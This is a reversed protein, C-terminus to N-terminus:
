QIRAVWLAPRLTAGLAFGGADTFAFAAAPHAGAASLVVYATSGGRVSRSASASGFVMTPPNLWGFQDNVSLWAAISDSNWSTISFVSPVWASGTGNNQDDLASATAFRVFLSDFNVGTLAQVNASGSLSPNKQVWDRTFQVLGGPYTPGFQDGLYRQFSWSTGYFYGAYCPTTLQLSGYLTCLDPANAAQNNSGLVGFSEAWKIMEDAYWNYGAAGFAVGAGYNQYSTNGLVADGALEEAFTAQGEAEWSTLSQGSHLILRQANQIVHTFEHAILQPMAAVVSSKTRAGTGAQNLPDPVEGYYIEGYNSQPCVATPFLDGGFVFGLLNSAAKNVQWTLVILVHGNNDLDTPHGFQATDSVFIKADFQNSASQIDSLTLSDTTPNQIDCLWIGASGVVRVVTKIAVYTLCPSAASFSPVRVIVTDGVAPPAGTIRGGTMAAVPEPRRAQSMLSPLHDAEWQRLKAEARARERMQDRSGQQAAALGAQRRIAPRPFLSRAPPAGAFPPAASIGGASTVTFPMVTAPSEAPASMGIVYTEPGSTAARFQLCFLSTNQVISEQGVALTVFSAPHVPVSPKAAAQSGVTVSVSVLRAPQCNSTPVTVTLSTLTAATVTAKAGGVFVTDNSLTTSFGTGTLTATQGEVLTDPQVSALSLATATATFTVPNGTIGSGTVTATLTNAGAVGLTWSGVTAVGSGNTSQNAGTISGGGSAVAFAVAVGAKPNSFADMVIVAPPTAVAAGATGSQGDGAQKGVSAAAGAAASATFTVATLTGVTATVTQTGVTGGLTWTSQGQGSANTTATVTGVSGGGTAIAFALMVGVAPHSASDNVQVVLPQALTQGVTGSQTDGSVKAIQAGVQTVTVTVNRTATGSTATATATGNALATVLGTASVSAAASGGSWTVTAGAMAAGNQDNVVASLQQTRGVTAFTVASPTVVISTAVKPAESSKCTGLVPPLALAAVAILRRFNTDM